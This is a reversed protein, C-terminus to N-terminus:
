SGLHYDAPSSCKGSSTDCRPPAALSWSVSFRDLLNAVLRRVISERGLDAVLLRARSREALERAEELVKRQEGDLVYEYVVVRRRVKVGPGNTTQYTLDLEAIRAPVKRSRITIRITEQTSNM